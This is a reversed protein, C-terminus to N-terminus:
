EWICGFIQGSVRGTEKKVTHVTNKLKNNAQKVNITHIVEAKSTKRKKPSFGTNKDSNNVM